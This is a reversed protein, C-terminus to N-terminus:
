WIDDGRQLAETGGDVFILQGTVRGNEPQTLWALLSAVHLPEGIGGLPMPLRALTKERAEPTAILYRSMPTDIVGPAVANLAIGAGAWAPSPAVRRVWRAIARKSAGYARRGSEDRAVLAVAGEEDGGLCAEVVEDGREPSLTAFSAIVAARPDTARALLPRLGDLSSLAGFYNVRVIREPDGEGGGVGACAIVANLVGGTLEGARAIMAQRGAATALDAIIDADRLDVGIVRHGDRALYDKTAAGLGSASGTVV